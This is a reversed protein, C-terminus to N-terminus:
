LGIRAGFMLWKGPMQAGLLDSYQSNFINDVQIYIGLKNRILMYEAKSNIVFYDSTVKANISSAEQRNRAKYIGNASFSFASLSYHISFNSLFNAHSSIYFSAESESSETNMWVLGLNAWLLSKTSLPKSFYIDTEFGTTTVEAINKAFAYSAAPLLNDKRPMDAYATPVYDILKDHLRQFYSASIKFGKKSFWDAGAEYSFSTEAELNPNGVTQGNPVPKRNYNNYRETMDADRITKGASARLQFENIFYSLNLQPIIEIGREENWDLRIAPSLQFANSFSKNLLIFGALQTEEHDGRNNSRLIRNIVQAGSTITTNNNPSYEYKVLGQWLQSKNINAPTSNNFIYNDEVKKFGADISLQSKNKQFSTRITNWFSRVRETATDSLVRTYFNQASFDRDDIGSRLAIKWNDNLYHSASISATHLNFSGKTGRLPPGSAINTMLGGAVSTRGTNYFGGANGSILGYDGITIKGDLRKQQVDKKAAFSKTIIHIVGGVAESGYIASSAGKLVEIREIESPTIPIYSNFHGTLPDNIRIGDLIVLVQQFTGGRIVFDSQVGMPGRAQVEVGPLYRLLEDISHVPLTQFKDGKIVVINRGTKSISTASLTSTVSIPDLEIETQQGFLLLPFLFTIILLHGAKM